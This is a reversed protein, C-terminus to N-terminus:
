VSSTSPSKHSQSLDRYLVFYARVAPMPIFTSTAGSRAVADEIWLRSPLLRSVQEYQYSAMHWEVLSPLAALTRCAAIEVLQGSIVHGPVHSALATPAPFREEALIIEPSCPPVSLREKSSGSPGGLHSLSDFSTRVAIGLELRRGPTREASRM